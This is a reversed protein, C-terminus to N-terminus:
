DSPSQAAHQATALHDAPNNRSAVDEGVGSKDGLNEPLLTETSVTWNDNILTHFLRFRFEFLNDFHLIFLQNIADGKLILNNM